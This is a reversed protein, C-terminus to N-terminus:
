KTADTSMSSGNVDNAELEVNLSDNLSVNNANSKRGRKGKTPVTPELEFNSSDNISVNNAKSKRGRKGKTAVIFDLEFTSSSSEDLKIQNAAFIEAKTRRNRKAPKKTSSDEATSEELVKSPEPLSQRPKRGRKKPGQNDGSTSQNLQQQQQLNETTSLTGNPEASHYAEENFNLLQL